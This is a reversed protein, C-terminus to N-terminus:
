PFVKRPKLGIVKRERLNEGLNELKAKRKLKGGRRREKWTGRVWIFGHFKKLRCTKNSIWKEGGNKKEMSVDRERRVGGGTRARETNKRALLAKTRKQEYQQGLPSVGTRGSPHLMGPGKEKKREKAKKPHVRGSRTTSMEGGLRGKRNLQMPGCQAEYLRSLKGDIFLKGKGGGRRPTKGGNRSGRIPSIENKIWRLATETVYM